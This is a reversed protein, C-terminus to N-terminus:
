ERIFRFRIATLRRGLFTYTAEYGTEQYRKLFDGGPGEPDDLVYSYRTTDGSTEIDWDERKLRRPVIEKFVGLYIAHETVFRVDNLVQYGELDSAGAEFYALDLQFFHYPPDEAKRSLTLVQTSDKNLAFYQFTNPLEGPVPETLNATDFRALFVSDQMLGIWNISTDPWFGRGVISM